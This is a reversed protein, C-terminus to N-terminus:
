ITGLFLRELPRLLPPLPLLSSTWHAFQPISVGRSLTLRTVLQTDRTSGDSAFSSLARPAYMARCLTKFFRQTEHATCKPTELTLDASSLRRLATWYDEWKPFRITGGLWPAM